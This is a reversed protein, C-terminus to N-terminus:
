ESWNGMHKFVSNFPSWISSSGSGKTLKQNVGFILSLSAHFFFSLSLSLILFSCVM